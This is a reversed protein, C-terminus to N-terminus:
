KEGFSSKLAFHTVLYERPVDLQMAGEDISENLKQDIDIAKAAVKAMFARRAVQAPHKLVCSTRISNLTSTPLGGNDPVLASPPPEFTLTDQSSPNTTLPNASSKLVSADVPPQLAPAQPNTPPDPVPSETPSELLPANVSLASRRSM